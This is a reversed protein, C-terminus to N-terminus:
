AHGGLLAELLDIIFYIKGSVGGIASMTMFGLAAGGRIMTMKMAFLCTNDKDGARADVKFTWIGTRSFMTPIQFDLLVDSRGSSAMYGVQVGSTNRITLRAYDNFPTTRLPGTTSDEQDPTGDAYVASGSVKLSANIFGEDPLALEKKKSEPICGRLYIFFVRHASIPSPAIELFEIKFIQENKPVADYVANNHGSVRDDAMLDESILLKQQTPEPKFSLVFVATCLSLIPPLLSKM